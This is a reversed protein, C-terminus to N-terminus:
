KFHELSTFRSLLTDAESEEIVYAMSVRRAFIPHFDAPVFSQSSQFVSFSQSDPPRLGITRKPPMDKKPWDFRFSIFGDIGAKFDRYSNISLVCKTQSNSGNTAAREIIKDVNDIHVLPDGYNMLNLFILGRDLHFTFAAIPWHDSDMYGIEVSETTGTKFKPPGPPNAFMATLLPQKHLKITDISNALREFTTRTPASVTIELVFNTELEVWWARFYKEISPRAHPDDKRMVTVAPFGSMMGTVPRTLPFRSRGGCGISVANELSFNNSGVPILLTRGNNPFCNIVGLQLKISAHEDEAKYEVGPGRIEVAAMSSTLKFASYGHVPAYDVTQDFVSQAGAPLYVMFACLVVFDAAINLRLTM